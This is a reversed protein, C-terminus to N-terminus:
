PLSLLNKKHLFDITTQTVNGSSVDRATATIETRGFYMSVEIEREKGRWTDPSSVTVSGLRTVGPDTTFKSDPNSVSYFVVTFENNNALLLRYTSTFMQGIQVAEDEKIFINNV